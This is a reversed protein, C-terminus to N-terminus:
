GWRMKFAIAHAEQEFSVRQGVFYAPFQQDIIWAKVEDLYEKPVRGGVQTEIVMLTHRGDYYDHVEFRPNEIWYEAYRNM